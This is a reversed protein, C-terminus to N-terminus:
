IHILSLDLARRDRAVVADDHANRIGLGLRGAGLEEHEVGVLELLQDRLLDASGRQEGGAEALAGGAGQQHRPHVRVLASRQPLLSLARRLQEFDGAPM